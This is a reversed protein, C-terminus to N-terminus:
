GQLVPVEEGGTADLCFEAQGQQLAFHLHQEGPVHDIKVGSGPPLKGSLLLDALPFEVEQRHALILDRAGLLKQRMGRELLFEKASPLLECWSGRSGHSLLWRNMREFHRDLVKSLHEVELRRFVVLNDIQALLDLGFVNEAETHCIHFIADEEQDEGNERTAGGAFGIRGNELIEATCLSSTLLIVCNHIRSRRGGPLSLQGTELMRALPLFFSKPARELDQVLIVTPPRPGSDMLEAEQQMSLPWLQEIFSGWMDGHGVPHCDLTFVMEEGHLIRALTRVLHARGTGPPGMFLYACWSRESPTLGSMMRTVGRVVNEVARPQGVVEHFLSSKLSESFM